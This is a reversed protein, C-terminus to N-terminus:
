ETQLAVSASYYLSRPRPKSLYTPSIGFAMHSYFFLCSVGDHAEKSRGDGGESIAEGRRLQHIYRSASRYGHRGGGPCYKTCTFLNYRAGTWCVGGDCNWYREDTLNMLAMGLRLVAWGGLLIRGGRFSTRTIVYFGLIVGSVRGLQDGAIALGNRRSCEQSIATFTLASAEGGIFFTVAVVFFALLVVRGVAVNKSSSFAHHAAIIVTCV